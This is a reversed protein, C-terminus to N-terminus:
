QAENEAEKELLISIVKRLKRIELKLFKIQKEYEEPTPKKEEGKPRFLFEDFFVAKSM